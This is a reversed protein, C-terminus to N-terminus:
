YDLADTEDLSRGQHSVDEASATGSGIVNQSEDKSGTSFKVLGSWSAILNIDRKWHLDICSGRHYRGKIVEFHVEHNIEDKEDAFIRFISDCHYSSEDSFAIHETGQKSAKLSERNMQAATYYVTKHARSGEKLERFVHDYMEARDRYKSVPRILNAYDILVLDPPRGHLKEFSLVESEIIGTTCGQPVDVLYLPHQVKKQHELFAM